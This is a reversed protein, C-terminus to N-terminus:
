RLTPGEYDTSGGGARLRRGSAMGHDRTGRAPENGTPAPRYARLGTAAEATSDTSSRAECGSEACFLQRRRAQCPPRACAGCNAGEKQGARWTVTCQAKLRREAGPRKENPGNNSHRVRWKGALVSEKDGNFPTEAGELGSRRGDTKHGREWHQHGRTLLIQQSGRRPRQGESRTRPACHM